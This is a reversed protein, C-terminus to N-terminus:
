EESETSFEVIYKNIVDRMDHLFAVMAKTDVGSKGINSDPSDSSRGNMVDRIYDGNDQPQDARLGNIWDDLFYSTDIPSSTYQKGVIDQMHMGALGVKDVIEQTYFVEKNDYRAIWLSPLNGSIHPRIDDPCSMYVCKLTELDAYLLIPINHMYASVCSVFLKIHNFLTPVERCQGEVDLILFDPCKMGHTTITNVFNMAENTPHNTEIGFRAFHYAGWPIGMKCLAKARQDYKPDIYGIGETAKIIVAGTEPKTIYEEFVDDANHRSFDYVKM